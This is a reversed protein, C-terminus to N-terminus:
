ICRHRSFFIEDPNCLFQVLHHRSIVRHSSIKVGVPPANDQWRTSHVLGTFTEERFSINADSKVRHIRKIEHTQFSQVTPVRAQSYQLLHDVPTQRRKACMESQLVHELKSQTSGTKDWHGRSNLASRQRASMHVSTCCFTFLAAWPCPRTHTHTHTTVSHAFLVNNRPAWNLLCLRIGLKCGLLM